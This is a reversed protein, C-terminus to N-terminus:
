RRAEVVDPHDNAPVLETIDARDIVPPRGTKGSYVTVHTKTSSITGIYAGGNTLEVVYLVTSRM